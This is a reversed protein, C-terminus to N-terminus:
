RTSSMGGDAGLQVYVGGMRMNNGLSSLINRLIGDQGNRSYMAWEHYQLFCIWHYAQEEPWGACNGNKLAPVPHITHALTQVPVHTCSHKVYLSFNM